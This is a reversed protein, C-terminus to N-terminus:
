TQILHVLNPFQCSTVLRLHRHLPNPEPGTATENRYSLPCLRLRLTLGRKSALWYHFALLALWQVGAARFCLLFCPLEAALWTHKPLLYYLFSRWDSSCNNIGTVTVYLLSMLLKSDPNIFPYQTSSYVPLHWLLLLCGNYPMLFISYYWRCTCQLKRYYM